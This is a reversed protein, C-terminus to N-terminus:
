EWEDRIENLYSAVNVESWADKGLGRLESLQRKEQFDEPESVLDVLYKILEKQDHQNLSKAQELVFALTMM